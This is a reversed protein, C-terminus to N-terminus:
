DELEIEGSVIMRIQSEGAELPMATAAPAFSRKNEEFFVPGGLRANMGIDLKRIKYPKGLTKAVLGARAHFSAIAEQIAKDEATQRTQPAPTFRVNEVILQKEQLQGLLESLAAVDGSELLLESSMQWKRNHWGAFTHTGGSRYKITDHTKMIAEAETVLLKVANAAAKPTSASAQATVTAQVLDNPANQVAEASLTIVPGAQAAPLSLFVLLLAATCLSLFRLHIARNM